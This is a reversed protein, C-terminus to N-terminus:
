KTEPIDFAQKLLELGHAIRDKYTDNQELPQYETTDDEDGHLTCKHIIATGSLQMTPLTDHSFKQWYDVQWGNTDFDDAEYGLEQLVSSIGDPTAIVINTFDVGIDYRNEEDSSKSVENIAVLIMDTLDTKHQEELRWKSTQEHLLMHNM